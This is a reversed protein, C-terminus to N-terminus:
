VRRKANINNGELGEEKCKYHERRFGGRQM